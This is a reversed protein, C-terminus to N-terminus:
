IKQFERLDAAKLLDKKECVDEYDERIIAYQAADIFVGDKFYKQRSTGEYKMGCKELVKASADNGRFVEAQVRNLGIECFAYRLVARLVETMVGINWLRPSLMYCTDAMMCSGDVNGLNITGVPEGTEKWVVVWHFYSGSDYSSVWKEVKERYEALGSVPHFPFYRCVEEYRAWNEYMAECDEPRIRRLICRDTEIQRTGILNM